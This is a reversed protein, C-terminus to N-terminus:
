VVKLNLEGIGEIGATIIDGRRVPGVGSPTGTFILDGAHLTVYKSLISIVEAPTNVMCNMNGKQRGNGNVSLYISGNKVSLDGWECEGAGPACPVDGTTDRKGSALAASEESIFLRPHSAKLDQALLLPSVVACDDGGKALDWPKSNEKAQAQLDRRTMDLGIGYGYIVNNADEVTINFYSLASDAEREGGRKAHNGNAPSHRPGVAVVLEVQHHYSETVSPYRINLDASASTPHHEVAGGTGVQVTVLADTPKAFFFPNNKSTHGGMERAHSEYNQGVCYIRRVPYLLGRRTATVVPIVTQRLTFVLSAM